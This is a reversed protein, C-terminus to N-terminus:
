AAPPGEQDLHAPTPAPPNGQAARWPRVGVFVPSRPTMGVNRVVEFTRGDPLSFSVRISLPVEGLTVLIRKGILHLRWGEPLLGLLRDKGTFADISFHVDGVAGPLTERMMM